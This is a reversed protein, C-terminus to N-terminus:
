LGVSGGKDVRRIRREYLSLPPSVLFHLPRTHLHGSKSCSTVHPQVINVDIENAHRTGSPTWMSETQANPTPPQPTSHTLCRCPLLEESSFTALCCLACHPLRIPVYDDIFHRERPIVARITHARPRLDGAGRLMWRSSGFSSIAM